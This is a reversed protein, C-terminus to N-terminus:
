TQENTREMTVFQHVRWLVSANSFIGVSRVAVPNGDLTVSLMLIHRVILFREFTHVSRMNRASDELDLRPM